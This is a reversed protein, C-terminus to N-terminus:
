AKTISFYLSLASVCLCLSLIVTDRTRWKFTLTLPFAGDFGRSVMAMSVKQARFVAHATTAAFVAAFSRWLQLTGTEPSRLRMSSLTASLREGLLFIYRYSLIFLSVLKGPVKLRTMSSAIASISMPVIFVMYVLAAANIRLTYLLASDAGFGFAAPLWLAATMMNVPLLRLGSVRPERSLALACLAICAALAEASTTYVVAAILVAAALFRCRGDIPRLIDKKYELRDLYM